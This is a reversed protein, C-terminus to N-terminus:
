INFKTNTYFCKRKCQGYLAGPRCMSVLSLRSISEEPPLNEHSVQGPRTTGFPHLLKAAYFSPALVLTLLTLFISTILCFDPRTLPGSRTGSRCRCVAEPPQDSCFSPSGRCCSCGGAALYALPDTAMGSFHIPRVAEAVDEAQTAGWPSSPSGGSLVVIGGRAHYGKPRFPFFEPISFLFQDLPMASLMSCGAMGCVEVAKRAEATRCVLLLRNM